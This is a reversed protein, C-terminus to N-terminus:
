RFRNIHTSDITHLMLTKKQPCLTSHFSTIGTTSPAGIPRSSVPQTPPNVSTASVDHPLIQQVNEAFLSRLRLKIETAEDLVVDRVSICGSTGSVDHAFWGDALHDVFSWLKGGVTRLIAIELIEMNSPLQPAAQLCVWFVTPIYNLRSLIILTVM